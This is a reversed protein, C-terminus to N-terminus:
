LGDESETLLCEHLKRTPLLDIPLLLNTKVLQKSPLLLNTNVLQKSPFHFNNFSDTKTLSNNQHEGSINPQKMEHSFRCINHQTTEAM